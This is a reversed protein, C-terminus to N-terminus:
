RLQVTVCGIGCVSAGVPSTARGVREIGTYFLTFTDDTEPILGLPTRIRRAWDGQGEVQVVIPEGRVWNIGDDSYACGVANPVTGGIDYVAVYAGDALQTVIPNEIFVPEIPLPNLDSCRKWPGGLSPAAALGVRWSRVPKKETNASGYLAYWTEKVQYPFFSDTGQLGEWPDSAVGPELIVGVDEYPGGIGGPGQITSTARWIRGEHNTRYATETDPASRYAVYFLNWCGEEDNYIPMPAWLSARPDKGDFEGSSTYLSSVRTWSRRDDSTWHALTMKVTHPDGAMESTFLHYVSGLKLVRGGEFGYQNGEAGPSEVTLVPTSSQEVVSFHRQNPGM